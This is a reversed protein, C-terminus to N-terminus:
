SRFKKFADAVEQGQAVAEKVRDDMAVLKPMLDLVQDLQDRPIAVVGELPDCFIIDGPSVTVGGVSVPVNRAAPKAEAGSGVTSTALGWVPLKSERLEGLDRVRGNVVAGKVGLYGMRVAMIGGLVACFQGHPQDLIAVSGPEACDVWHKGHPFGNSQPDPLDPAPDSKSIFKFTSAAGIVKPLSESRGVSPAFPIFDALYGARPTAGQPPKQIKLLADSVDCASYAQLANLKQDLATSM